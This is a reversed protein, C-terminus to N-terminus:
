PRLEPIGKAFRNLVHIPWRVASAWLDQCHLRLYCVEGGVKIIICTKKTFAVWWGTAAGFPTMALSGPACNATVPVVVFDFITSCGPSYTPIVVQELVANEYVYINGIDRSM